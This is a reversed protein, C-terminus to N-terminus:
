QKGASLSVSISFSWDVTQRIRRHILDLDNAFSSQFVTVAGNNAVLTCKLIYRKSTDQTSENIKDVLGIFFGSLREGDETEFGGDKPFFTSPGSWQNTTM